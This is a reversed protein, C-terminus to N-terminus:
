AREWSESDFIAMTHESDDQEPYGLVHVWPKGFEDIQYIEFNKGVMWTLVEITEKLYASGSNYALIDSKPVSTIRIVDGISLTKPDPM